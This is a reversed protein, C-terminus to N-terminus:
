EIERKKVQIVTNQPVYSDLDLKWVTGGDPLEGTLTFEMQGYFEKVMKNKATPYYYGTLTRAGRKVAETVVQDLMAKEMDRKLVRCSMLWLRLHITEGDQEGLIVSVVGNDGFKDTLKGYLTLYRPDEAFREMDAQSCRLTTLNFQNSKNTLQAIRQMYEPAYPGIEATMDLSKLYEQYDGISHELKKRQENAQYMASRKLDDGSIGVPEFFGSRDLIRIYREPEPEPGSTMQPVAADPVGMEAKQREAPNDDVFVLADEGLNLESAIEHLNQDKPDWNAKIVIFDEPKLVSDPRNLGALANEEENKSDINLLIGMDKWSKLYSQFESYIQAMGTEQGIEINEPGDDGVIGGWLTNDLDLVLAKKNKGYIAKIMNALNFSLEPIAGVAPSYKYMHWYVPDNWRSGGYEAALWEIDQIYFKDHEQAYQYFKQNLQGLFWERGRYDWADMNGMRRYPPKEFNNQIIPCHYTEELHEWIQVFRGYEQELKEEVQQRTDSLVPFVVDPVNRSTTHIYFIDPQFEMLIENGFVADEYYQNYESEYFEPEIGMDLLFLELIQIIDHTTSGGLVAIKKHIRPRKEALLERKIRKKKKILYEGDFPYTLERMMRRRQTTQDYLFLSGDSTSSGFSNEREELM